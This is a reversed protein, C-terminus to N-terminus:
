AAAISAAAHHARKPHSELSPAPRGDPKPHEHGSVASHDKWPGLVPTM